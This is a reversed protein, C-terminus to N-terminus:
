SVNFKTATKNYNLSDELYYIVIEVREDFTIPREKIM